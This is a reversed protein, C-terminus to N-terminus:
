YNRWQNDGKDAISRGVLVFVWVLGVFFALVSAMCLITMLYPTSEIVELPWKWGLSHSYYWNEISTIWSEYGASSGWWFNVFVSTLYSVYDM